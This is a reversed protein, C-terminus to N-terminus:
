FLAPDNNILGNPVFIQSIAAMKVLSLHTLLFMYQIHTFSPLLLMCDIYLNNM